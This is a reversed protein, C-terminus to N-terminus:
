VAGGLLHRVADREDLLERLSPQLAELLEENIEEWLPKLQQQNSRCPVGVFLGEPLDSHSARTTWRGASLWQGQELDETAWWTNVIARAASIATSQGQLALIASGRQRVWPIWQDQLWSAGVRQWAPQDHIRVHWRDPVCSESHNGWVGCHTVHAPPVEARRALAGRARLGDLETMAMFQEPPLESRASCAWCLTNCPNGVVLVRCRPNANKGLWEGQQAFASVNAALLDARSQGPQRPKAGILLIGHAGQFVDPGIEQAEVRDLGVFCCDMLEDRLGEAKSLGEATDTLCLSWSRTSRSYREALLLATAHAVRGGAGTLVVREM